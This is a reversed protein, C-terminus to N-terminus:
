GKGSKRWKAYEIDTMDAPNKSGGKSGGIPEIPAPAKSVIPKSVNAKLELKGIEAAQRAPHLRSIREVENPNNAMFAMLKPAVDSETVAAAIAPTLPLEDFAERSFGTIKEAEVYLGETKQQVRGQHEQVRQSRVQQDRQDLKWDAVAEVYDDVNDFQAQTPRGDKSDQLQEQRQPVLRELTERYMKLARREAKSEAKAKEKRVIENVQSQTLTATEVQSEEKEGAGSETAPAPSEVPETTAAPIQAAGENIETGEIDM